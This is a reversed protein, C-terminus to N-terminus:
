TSLSVTEVCEEQEPLTVLPVFGFALLMETQIELATSGRSIIELYEVRADNGRVIEWEQWACYVSLLEAEDMEKQAAEEDSLEEGLGVMARLGDSWVIQRRGHYVLAYEVWLRGAEVDGGYSCELLQRPTLHEDRGRKLGGKTHWRALEDAERWKPDHGFKAVYDAIKKTDDVLDFGHENMTLGKGSACREWRARLDSALAVVDADEAVFLIVHIHPHWGNRRSHTVELSRIMGVIEYRAKLRSAPAGRWMAQYAQSMAELQGRLDTKADHRATLTMLVTRKGMREMAKVARYIDNRRENSIRAACVACHWVSGCIQLGGTFSAGKATKSATVGM